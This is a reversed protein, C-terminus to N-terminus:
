GILGVPQVNLEKDVIFRNEFEWRIDWGSCCALCGLRGLISKQVQQMRKLDFAVEVPVAVRVLNNALPTHLSSTVKGM